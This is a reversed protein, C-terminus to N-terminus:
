IKLEEIVCDVMKDKTMELLDEPVNQGNTVFATGKKYHRTMEFLASPGTTEDMKTFIFQDIGIDWFQETIKKMDQVKSALSLVLFTSMEDGFNLIEELEKVYQKNLYNRGATDIFVVDLDTLKMKAKHFDEASYCVEIPAELINAYTKLQEIAAIRYTDTTIFGVKKGHKLKATAALKALTTTKGVGTPGVLCIYKQLFSRNEFYVDSIAEQMKEETHELLEQLSPHNNQWMRYLYDNIEETFSPDLDLKTVKEELLILYDPVDPNRGANKTLHKMMRKMEQISDLLKEQEFSSINNPQPPVENRASHKSKINQEMVVDDVAAIVEVSKKTVLGFFKNTKVAKSNLIVADNGLELRVLEMAEQMTDAKYKKM